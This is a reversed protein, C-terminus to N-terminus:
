KIGLKIRVIKETVDIGEIIIAQEDPLPEELNDSMREFDEEPINGLLRTEQSHADETARTKAIVRPTQVWILKCDANSKHAIHRLRDRDRRFSFNTDFVVSKGEKLLQEAVKNLEGYLKLNEEHSYNPNGFRHVREKDAWLHAADTIKSIFSAVTTKGAGPYGLMLYLTPKM